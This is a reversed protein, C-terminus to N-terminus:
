EDMMEDPDMTIKLQVQITEGELELVGLLVENNIFGGSLMETILTEIYDPAEAAVKKAESM